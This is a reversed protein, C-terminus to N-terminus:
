AAPSEGTTSLIVWGSALGLVPGRLLGVIKRTLQRGTYHPHAYERLLILDGIQFGRDDFRLEFTKTGDAQQRFYEPAIKLEHMAPM